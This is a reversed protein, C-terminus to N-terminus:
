GRFALVQDIVKGQDEASISAYLPLRVLRESIRETVPCDGEGYGLKRGMISTHLPVYHFPTVIGAQWMHAIFAQRRELSPFILYFMHAPHQAEAPVVPLSIGQAEAWTKLETDYRSWAVHRRRQISEQAELQAVLFAALVESPLYSSGVDVWGYKDVQGRFFQSRNTGKERIVEAREIYERQNIILAGGEGCTINKTEHFSLTSFAGFSGLKRGRYSGFLGHANDEVIPIGREASLKCIVDMDCGVGAYHVPVIARTKATLKGEILREDLNLTDPRIDVFVPHAGRLVFANVTSVFTFSPVIVEDGPAINLLLAAMELAHTCSTTLLAKPAGIAQQLLEHCRRTFSGDGAVHMDTFAKLVNEIEAGELSAKNFPIKLGIM